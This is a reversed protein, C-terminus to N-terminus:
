QCADTTYVGGSIPIASTCLITTGDARYIRRTATTRNDIVKHGGLRQYMYRVMNDLAIAGTGLVSTVETKTKAWFKDVAASSVALASIADTSMTAVNVNPVGHQAAPNGYTTIIVCSDAWTKTGQDKINLVIRAATLDAITLAISYCSGNDVFANTTNAEAGGNKSIKTDGVAHVANEVQVAGVTAETIYLCFDVTAALAYPLTVRDCALSPTVTGLVLLLTLLAHKM